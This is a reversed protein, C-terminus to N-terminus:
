RKEKTIVIGIAQKWRKDHIVRIHEIDSNIIENKTLESLHEWNEKFVYTANDLFVSELIYVNKNEFGFVFYGNFGGHGVGIFDPKYANILKLRELIIESEEKTLRSTGSKIMSAVKDWPYVGKPLIHWQLKKFKSTKLPNKNEDLVEFENFCELMLNAIHINLETSGESLRLSPTIIYKEDNIVAISLFVSPAQIYVRAIRKGSRTKSGYHPQRHWDYTTSAYTVHYTEKPLDPRKEERGRANFMTYKGLATPIISIGEPLEKPFGIEILRELPVDSTKLGLIVEDLESAIKIIKDISRISKSKIKM